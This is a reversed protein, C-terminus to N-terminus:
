EVCDGDATIRNLPITRSPRGAINYTMSASACSHFEIDVTGVQVPQAARPPADFRGGTTQLVPLGYASTGTAYNGVVTYWRQRPTGAPDGVELDYTYWAMFLMRNNAPSVFIQVGQGHLAEDHWLGNLGPTIGQQSLDYTPAAGTTCNPNNDLRTLPITGSRQVGDVNIQYQLKASTCSQFSLQASGVLVASTAPLADFNGGTNRYVEFTNNTDNHSFTGRLTYWRQSSPTNLGSADFTYWGGLIMGLSANVELLLGQGETEPDYWGGGFERRYPLNAPAGGGVSSPVHLLLTPSGDGANTIKGPTAENILAHAVQAHTAAPNAALYRAAAGAVHPAAMSTGSMPQSATDSAPSASQIATGPAFLDLCTGYNSADILPENPVITQWISRKDTTDSAGVTIADLLGSPSSLCADSNTNGAAVVVTVGSAILNRVADDIVPVRGETQMSLNAVAPKIHNLAVWDIARAIATFEGGGSCDFAHVPHVIAGKAVGWTTGAVTGAVHTGHSDCDNNPPTGPYVSYGNGIRGAFEAHTTRIRGDIVYAHVNAGNGDYVYRGDLPLNRQDIRDLGWTPNFQTASLRTRGDEQVYAVRKDAILYALANDNAQVAFGRLAGSYSHLLTAGYDKAMKKAVESVPPASSAEGQLRAATTKLVVIYRGVIPQSVTRFGEASPQPAPPPAISFGRLTTQGFALCPTAALVGLALCPLIHRSFTSTM